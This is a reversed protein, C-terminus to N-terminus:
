AFPESRYEGSRSREIILMMAPPTVYSYYLCVFSRAPYPQAFPRGPGFSIPESSRGSPTYPTYFLAISRIPVM